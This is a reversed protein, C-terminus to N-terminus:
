TGTEVTYESVRINSMCAAHESPNARLGEGSVLEMRKSDKNWVDDCEKLPTYRVIPTQPPGTPANDDTECHPTNSFHPETSLM